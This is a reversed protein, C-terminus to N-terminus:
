GLVREPDALTGDLWTQLHLHCGTSLGTTGIAGVVQGAAVRAGVAVSFGQAHNYSTVLRRGAVVGHDIVLRNGYAASVMRQTVVGAAVARIPSGCPAAYDTGDHLRWVGLIPHLRPGFRSTVPGDAPAALVRGAEIEVTLHGASPSVATRAPLADDAALLRVRSTGLLSLPDLYDGGRVLGWHLCGSDACHGDVVTGIVQGAVVPQGTSVVAAVPEYTTRLAGHDISVVPRGAVMGAFAVTGSGAAVVPAGGPADLDVGRHGPEWRHAPPDFGRVVAGPVPRIWEEDAHARAPVAVLVTLALLALWLTRTTM